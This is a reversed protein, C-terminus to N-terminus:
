IAPRRGQQHHRPGQEPAHAAPQQAPGHRDPGDAAPVGGSSLGVVWWWWLCCGDSLATLLLLCGGPLGLWAGGLERDPRDPHTMDRVQTTTARTLKEKVLRQLINDASSLEDTDKSGPGSVPLGLPGLVEQVRYRTNM